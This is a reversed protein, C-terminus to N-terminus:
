GSVRAIACLNNQANNKRNCDPYAVSVTPEVKRFANYETPSLNDVVGDSWWEVV